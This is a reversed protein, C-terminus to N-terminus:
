RHEGAAALRTPPVPCAAENVLRIRLAWGLLGISGVALVPQLPSWVALAGSTGLATVVVKNCVPCGIAFFSLIGGGLSRGTAAQEDDAREGGRVYTATLLGALLATLVLVPYSWWTVPVQRGFLPNPIVDTPLGAVAGWLVAAGGAAIWRRVPWLRLAQTARVGNAVM